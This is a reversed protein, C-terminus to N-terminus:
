GQFAVAVLQRIEEAGADLEFTFRAIDLEDIQPVSKELLAWAPAEHFDVQCM